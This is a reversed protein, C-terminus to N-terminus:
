VRPPENAAEGINGYRGIERLFSHQLRSLRKRDNVPTVDGAGTPEAPVLAQAPRNRAM